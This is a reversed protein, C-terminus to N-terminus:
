SRFELLKRGKLCEVHKEAEEKTNFMKASSRSFYYNECYYHDKYKILYSGFVRIHIIEFEKEEKYFEKIYLKM